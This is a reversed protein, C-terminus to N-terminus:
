TWITPIPHQVVQFEPNPSPIKPVTKLLKVNKCLYWGGQSECFESTVTVCLTLCLDTCGPRLFVAGAISSLQKQDSCEAVHQTDSALATSEFCIGPSYVLCQRDAKLGWLDCPLGLGSLNLSVESIRCELLTQWLGQSELNLDIPSHSWEQPGKSLDWELHHM